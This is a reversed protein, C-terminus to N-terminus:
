HTGGVLISVLVFIVWPIWHSIISVCFFVLANAFRKKFSSNHDIFFHVLTTAIYILIPAISSGMDLMSTNFAILGLVVGTILATVVSLKNM